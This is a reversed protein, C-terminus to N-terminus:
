KLKVGTQFVESGLVLKDLLHTQNKKKSTEIKMKLLIEHPMCM